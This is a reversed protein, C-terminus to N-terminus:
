IRQLIMRTLGVVDISVMFAYNTMLGFSKRTWATYALGVCGSMWVPYLWILPPYPATAAMVGATAVSVVWAYMEILFRVRNTQYDTRIWQLIGSLIENM